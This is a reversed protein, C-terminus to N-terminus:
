CQTKPGREQITFTANQSSTKRLWKGRLTQRLVKEDSPRRVFM